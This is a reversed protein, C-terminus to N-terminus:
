AGAKGSTNVSCVSCRCSVFSLANYQGVTAGSLQTLPIACSMCMGRNTWFIHLLLPSIHGIFQAFLVILGLGLGDRLAHEIQVFM